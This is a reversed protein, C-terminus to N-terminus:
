ATSPLGPRAISQPDAWRPWAGPAASGQLGRAAGAPAPQRGLSPGGQSRDPERGPGRCRTSTSERPQTKVDEQYVSTRTTRRRRQKYQQKASSTARCAKLLDLAMDAWAESSLEACAHSVGRQDHGLNPSSRVIRAC